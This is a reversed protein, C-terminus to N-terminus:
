CEGDIVQTFIDVFQKLIEATAGWILNNNYVCFHSTIVEGNINKTGYQINSDGLLVGMPIEIIEDIEHRNVKLEFPWEIFAVFPYVIYKSTLTVVDDLRGLIEVQSPILGIEETTERVATNVFDKDENKYVGGPFSIQGKHDRLSMARKTVILYYEGQKIYLPLLVAAPVLCSRDITKKIRHSLVRKLKQKVIGIIGSRYTQENLILPQIDEM